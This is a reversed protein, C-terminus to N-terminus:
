RQARRRGQRALRAQDGRTRFRGVVAAFGRDALCRGFPQRRPDRGGAPNVSGRYFLSDSGSVPEMMELRRRAYGPTQANAINDGVTSLARSYAKLGSYGIGLLDTM